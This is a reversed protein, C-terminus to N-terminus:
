GRAEREIQWGILGQASGQCAPRHHRCVVGLQRLQALVLSPQDGLWWHFWLAEVSRASAAEAALLPLCGDCILSDLRTGSM